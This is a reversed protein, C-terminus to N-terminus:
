RLLTLEGRFKGLSPVDMLFFYTGESLGAGDWNNRYNSDSYVEQGWRNFVQFRVNDFYLLNEVEFVENLGDGNPSFM